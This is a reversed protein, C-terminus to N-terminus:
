VCDLSSGVLDQDVGEPLLNHAYGSKSDFWSSYLFKTRVGLTANTVIIYDLFWDAGLGSGDTVM